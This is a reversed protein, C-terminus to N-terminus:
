HPTYAGSKVQLRFEAKMAAALDRIADATICGKRTIQYFSLSVVPEVLISLNVHYRRCAPAIFSPLVAVGYGAEVMALMTQFNEYV